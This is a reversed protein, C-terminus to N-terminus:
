RDLMCCYAAPLLEEVLLCNWRMPAELTRRHRLQDASPWKLHRRNQSLAFYGHVHVPLGTPSRTDLPLPLFCYVQSRFGGEEQGQGQGQGQGQDGSGPRELPAAVGVCPRYSLALDSCLEKMEPSVGERGQGAHFTSVLWKERLVLPSSPDSRRDVTEMTVETVCHFSERALSTAAAAASTPQSAEHKLRARFEGRESRVEELCDLAVQVSFTESLPPLGLGRGRGRRRPSSTLTEDDDRSFLRVGEITSLFLLMSPAEAEFAALLNAVRDATYVTGSLESPAQRLPLWFLTGQFGGGGGRRGAAAAFSQRTIGFLNEVCHLLSELERGKRGAVPKRTCYYDRGKSPDM